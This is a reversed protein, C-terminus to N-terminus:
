EGNALVEGDLICSAGTPSPTPSTTTAAATTTTDPTPTATPRVPDLFGFNPNRGAGELRGNNCRILVSNSPVIDGNQLIEGDLICTSDTPTPSSSSTTVASSSSADSSTTTSDSSSSAATPSVTATTSASAEESALLKSNDESSAIAVQEESTANITPAGTSTVESSADPTVSATVSSATTDTALTSTPTATIADTALTSTPTPTPTPTPTAEVAEVDSCVLVANTCNCLVTPAVLITANAEIITGNFSCPEDVPAVELELIEGVAVCPNLLGQSNCLCVSDGVTVNEGIASTLNAFTCNQPPLQALAIGVVASLILSSKM